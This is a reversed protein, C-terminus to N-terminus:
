PGAQKPLTNGGATRVWFRGDRTHGIARLEPIKKESILVIRAANWGDQVMQTVHALFELDKAKHCDDFVLYAAGISTKKLRDIAQLPHLRTREIDDKVQWVSTRQGVWTALQVLLREKATDDESFTFWFYSQEMHAYDLFRSVFHLKGVKPVGHLLLVNTKDLEGSRRPSGRGTWM